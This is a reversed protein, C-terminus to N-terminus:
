KLQIRDGADLGAQIQDHLTALFAEMETKSEIFTGPYCDRVILPRHPKIAPAVESDTVIASSLLEEVTTLARDFAEKSEVEDQQIHAISTATDVRRLLAALENTVAQRTQDDAEVRDLDSGLDKLRKQIAARAPAKAAEILEINVKDVTDILGAAQNLLKYPAKAELINSIQALAPEATPDQTLRNRNPGFSVQAERLQDWSHRQNTYFGHLDRYDDAVDLLESKANLFRDLFLLSDTERTFTKLTERCQAIESTGPYDGTTALTQYEALNRDWEAAHNKLFEFLADESTPGMTAFLEKGLQQADTVMKKDAIKHERIVVKRQKNSTTMPVYASGVPLAAADMFLGIEKLVALKAVILVSEDEPWGYPRKGYHVILEHLVVQENRSNRLKIYDRVANMAKPNSEPTDVELTLATIDDARLTTQIERRPETHLHALYSMKPYSNDILYDMAKGLAEGVSGNFTQKKGSVFYDAAALDDKLASVLRARRERNQDSLDRLIRRTSDALTSSQRGSVYAEVQLYIRLERAVTGEGPLRILVKANDGTTGLVCAADTGLMPYEENLPSLIAVELNGEGQNGHPHGDCSRNFTFDKGTRQYHHRNKDGLVDEFLLQGLKREEAGDHIRVSKIERGIDREENTLFFYRDANRAILTESELRNLSSEVQVRLALKDADM